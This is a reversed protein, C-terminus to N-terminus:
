CGALASMRRWEAPYNHKNDKRLDYKPAPFCIDTKPESLVRAKEADTRPNGLDDFHIVDHCGECVSALEEDRDGALVEPAYSKHHVRNATGGCRRCLYNDRKLVRPRIVRKWLPSNLYDRYRPELRSSALQIEAAARRWGGEFFAAIRRNLAEERQADLQSPIPPLLEPSM